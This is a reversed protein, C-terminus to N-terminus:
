QKPDPVLTEVGIGVQCLRSVLSKVNVDEPAFTVLYLRIEPGLRRMRIMLDVMASNLRASIVVLCGVKRLRQSEMMLVREFRDTESFDMGALYEFAIPVGMSKDVDAPHRGLLPMRISHDTAAQDAFVSAATELLLDRLDAEAQPHGWSPPPSCDMIILVDQLVPEEFRRVLLDGKRLSLKWHIKKMADGAQYERIDSPSSNDETARSMLESGPDGPAFSLPQIQFTKPLVTLTFLSKDTQIHKEFLGLLDEVVCARIGISFSGVHGAHFPMRLTQQRGPMDRLRIDRSDASAAALQLTVPAIPFWGRHRLSFLVQVDEGRCVTSESLSVSVNLSRSASLVSVFGATMVLLVLLALMYFLRGGTSVAVTLSVLLATLPLALHCKM